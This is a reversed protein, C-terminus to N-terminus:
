RGDRAHICYLENNGALGYLLGNKLTPTGFSITKDPNSWLENAVFKDGEKQLKVAKM